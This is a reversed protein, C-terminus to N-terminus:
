KMETINERTEKELSPCAFLVAAGCGARAEADADTDEEVEVEGEVEVEVEARESQDGVQQKAQTKKKNREGSRVAHQLM